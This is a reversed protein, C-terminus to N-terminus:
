TTRFQSAPNEPFHPQDLQRHSNRVPRSNQQPFEQASTCERQQSLVALGCRKRIGQTHPSLVSPILFRSGPAYPSRGSRTPTWHSGLRHVAVWQGGRRATMCREDIGRLAIIVQQQAAFIMAMRRHDHRTRAPRLEGRRNINGSSRLRFLRPFIRNISNLLHQHMPRSSGINPPRPSRWVSTTPM